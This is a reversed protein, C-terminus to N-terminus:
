SGMLGYRRAWKRVANDSVGYKEGIKVFSMNSIDFMLQDKSPRTVKRERINRCERSCCKYTKEGRDQTKFSKKCANCIVDLLIKEKKQRVINKRDTKRDTKFWLGKITESWDPPCHPFQVGKEDTYVVHKGLLSIARVKDKVFDRNWYIESEWIDVVTWGRSELFCFLGFSGEAKM